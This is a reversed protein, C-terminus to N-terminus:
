SGVAMGLAAAGLGGILTVTLYAGAAVPRRVALGVLDDSLTSFTTFAGIAGVGVVTVDPTTWHDILGLAFAGTLNVALTGLPRPLALGVRWRLVAGVGAAVAVMAATM